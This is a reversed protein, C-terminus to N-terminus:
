LKAKMMKGPHSQKEKEGAELVESPWSGWRMVPLIGNSIYKWLILITKAVYLSKRSADVSFFFVIILNKGPFVKGM